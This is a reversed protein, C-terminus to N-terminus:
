ARLSVSSTGITINGTGSASFELVGATDTTANSPPGAGVVAYSTNPTLDSVYIATAGSAPFTTGTFSVPYAQSFMVLNTGYLAGSFTQGATSNVLSPTTCTFSSAGWELTSLFMTNAVSGASLNIVSAPEWDGAQDVGGAVLGPATLTGGAPLLSTFCGKQTASRTPWSAHSGNITPTGTTTLNTSMATAAGTTASRDAYIIQNTGRLYILSRSAHAISNYLVADYPSNWGYWGNYDDTNDVIDAAYTPLESHYLTPIGNMQGQFWQGGQPAYQWAGNAGSGTPNVVQMENSQSAASMQTNYDNFVVRSKTIYENGNYVSFAGCTIEEHNIQGNSCNYTFVSNANSGTWGNRVMQHQNLSGNYLDTPLSPRPDSPLSNLPDGAPLAILLDTQLGYAIINYGYDFGCYFSCTGSTGHPGGFSTNMM